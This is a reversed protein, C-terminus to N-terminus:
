QTKSAYMYRTNCMFDENKVSGINVVRYARFFHHTDFLVRVATM